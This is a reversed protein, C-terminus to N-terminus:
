NKRRKKLPLVKPFERVGIDEKNVNNIYNNYANILKQDAVSGHHM